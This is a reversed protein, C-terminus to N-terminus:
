TFGGRSSSCSSSASNSASFAGGSVKSSFVSIRKQTDPSQCIPCVPLDDSQDFRLMKEFEQGCNECRYEYLPM